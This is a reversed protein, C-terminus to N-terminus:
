SRRRLDICGLVMLASGVLGMVPEDQGTVSGYRGWESQKLMRVEGLASTPTAQGVGALPLTLPPDRAGIARLDEAVLADKLKQYDAANGSAGSGFGGNGGVMNVIGYKRFLVKALGLGLEASSEKSFLGYQDITRDLNGTWEALAAVTHEQPLIYVPQIGGNKFIWCYM